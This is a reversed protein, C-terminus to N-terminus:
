RRQLGVEVRIEDSRYASRTECHPCTTEVTGVPLAVEGDGDLMDPLVAEIQLSKQCAPNRCTLVLWLESESFESDGM